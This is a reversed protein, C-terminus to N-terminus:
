LSLRLIESAVRAFAASLDGTSPAMIYLGTPESSTYSASSPDNSIREMWTEDPVESGGAYGITYIVVNLSNDQRIRQVASDAANLSAYGIQQPSDVKTLDVSHYGTTANGYYDPNPMKLVDQRMKTEDGNYYCNNSNTTIYGESVSSVTSATLKKIGV